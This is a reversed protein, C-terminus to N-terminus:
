LNLCLYVIFLLSSLIALKNGGDMIIHLCWSYCWGIVLHLLYIPVSLNSIIIFTIFPIIPSHTIISRKRKNKWHFDVDPSLIYSSGLVCGILLPMTLKGSLYLILCFVISVMQHWFGRMNLGM